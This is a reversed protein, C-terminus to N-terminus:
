GCAERYKLSRDVFLPVDMKGILGLITCFFNFNSRNHRHWEGGNCERGAICVFGMASLFLVSHLDHRRIIVTCKVRTIAAYINHNIERGGKLVSM